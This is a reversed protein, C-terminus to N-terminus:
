VAHLVRRELGLVPFDRGLERSLRPVKAQNDMVSTRGIFKVLRLSAGPEMQFVEPAKIRLSARKYPYEINVEGLAAEFLGLLEQLRGEAVPREYEVCLKYNAADSDCYLLFFVPKLDPRRECVREMAEIVQSEYLKEGTLSTVLKAKQVFHITPLRGHFGNVEVIDDINYRYLGHPGTQV